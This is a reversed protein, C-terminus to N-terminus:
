QKEEYKEKIQEWQEALENLSGKFEKYKFIEEFASTYKGKNTNEEFNSSNPAMILKYEVFRCSGGYRNSGNKWESDIVYGRKRLNYIIGSLRTAGYLQIAEISTISGKDELHKEIMLTETM